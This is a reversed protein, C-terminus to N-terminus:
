FGYKMWESGKRVAAIWPPKAAMEIIAYEKYIHVGAVRNQLHSNPNCANTCVAAMTTSCGPPDDKFTGEHLGIFNTFFNMLSDAHFLNGWQPNRLVIHSGAAVTNIATWMSPFTMVETKPTNFSLVGQSAQTSGPAFGGKHVVMLYPYLHVSALEGSYAYSGLFLSAPKFFGWLHSAPIDEIAIYGGPHINPFAATLTALCQHPQHGGDDVLIDLYIGKSYFADWMAKSGQDGITIDVGDGAFKKCNPNIDLGHLRIQKGLVAQWMLLSGGSQVGVEAISLPRGALDGFHRQYEDLANNWKWIGRGGSVQAYYGPFTAPAQISKKTSNELSERRLTLADANAALLLAVVAALVM